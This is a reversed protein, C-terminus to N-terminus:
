RGGVFVDTDPHLRAWAQWSTITPTLMAYPIPTPDRAPEVPEGSDHFYVNRALRIVMQWNRLGTVEADLLGSGIPGTYVKACLSLNSFSVSVPVGEILDNVLHGSADDFALVRYARAKGQVEVGIIWERPELKAAAAPVVPPRVTPRAPNDKWIVDPSLRYSMRAYERQRSAFEVAVVAVAAAAELAVVAVVGRRWSLHLRWGPVSTLPM